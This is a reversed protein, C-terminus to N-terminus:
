APEHGSLWSRMQAARLAASIGAPAGSVAFAVAIVRSARVGMLRLVQFEETAARMARGLTTRRLFLTLVV